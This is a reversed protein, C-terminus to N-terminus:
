KKRSLLRLRLEERQELTYVRPKKVTILKKKVNFYSAGTNDTELFQVDDPFEISFSKLRKTLAEDYTYLSAIVESQNWNIITEKESLSPM